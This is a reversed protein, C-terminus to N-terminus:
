RSISLKWMSPRLAHFGTCVVTALSGAIDDRSFEDYHLDPARFRFFSPDLHLRRPNSLFHLIDGPVLWRCQVGEQYDFQNVVEGMAVRYLLHPFNVGAAIALELSGWFRPNIEMLKAVGDRTDVKFEVMAVGYWSLESLLAIAAELLPGDHTSERLTSPGGSVPYERLRKYTFGAVPRHRADFLLAAGLGPGERPLREQVLIGRHVRRTERYATLLETPSAAYRLGRSGSSHTPKVVVPYSLEDVISTLADEDDPRYTRPTPIGLRAAIELTAAKDSAIELSAREALPLRTLAEIESRHELMVAITDDEMPIAVDYPVRRLEDLLRPLYDPEKPRPLLV